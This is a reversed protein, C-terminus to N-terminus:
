RRCESRRGPRSYDYAANYIGTALKYALLPPVANGVQTFQRAPPGCFVYDDPFTQIRASERVSLTRPIQPHLHSRGGGNAGGAIVTKSPEDPNLRDVRGLPERQGYNMEMYRLVSEARHVRTVHCEVDDVPLSLVKGCPVRLPDPTPFKPCEGTRSGLLFVRHRHQPVGFSAANLVQPHQVEYGAARLEKVARQVQVGDDVSLLGAVNEILFARPRFEKIYWIFEFLLNGYDVHDFGTRKFNEGSRSFRQNAAISFSQCPPGGIFVGEFPARIGLGQRLLHSYEDKNRIDGSHVPPGLVSWQPRNKRLTDCFLPNIEIAAAHHFGAAEFGLDLGGAGSFFSVVPIGTQAAAETAPLLGAARDQSSEFLSRTSEDKRYRLSDYSLGLRKLEDDLPAGTGVCHRLLEIQVELHLKETGTSM